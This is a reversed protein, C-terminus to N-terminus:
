CPVHLRFMSFAFASSFRRFILLPIKLVMSTPSSPKHYRHAPPQLDAPSDPRYRYHNTHAIIYFIAVYLNHKTEQSCPSHPLTGRIEGQM